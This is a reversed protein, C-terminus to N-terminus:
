EHDKDEKIKEASGDAPKETEGADSGDTNGQKGEGHEFVARLLNDLPEDAYRWIIINVGCRSAEMIEARMGESIRNGVVILDKCYKICELGLELGENREQEVSDRLFRTFYLAPAIPIRDFAAATRCARGLRRINEKLEAQAKDPDDSTPRYPACIYALSRPRRDRRLIEDEDGGTAENEAEEDPTEEAPTEETKPHTLLEDEAEKRIKENM